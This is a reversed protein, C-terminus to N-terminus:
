FVPDFETSVRPVRNQRHGQLARGVVGFARCPMGRMLVFENRHEMNAPRAVSRLVGENNPNTAVSRPFALTARPQSPSPPPIMGSASISSSCRMSDAPDEVRPCRELVDRPVQVVREPVFHDRDARYRAVPSATRAPGISRDQECWKTSPRPEFSRLRSPECSRTKVATEGTTAYSRESTCNSSYTM